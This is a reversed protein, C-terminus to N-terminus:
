ISAATAPYFLGKGSNLKAKTHLLGLDAGTARKASVMDVLSRSCLCSAPELKGRHRTSQGTTAVGQRSRSTVLCKKPTGAMDKGPM